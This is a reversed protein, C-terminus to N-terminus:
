ARTSEIVEPLDLLLKRMDAADLGAENHAAANGVAALSDIHKMKTKSYHQMGYLAQNFDNLTPRPKSPYCGLSDCTSRLHEELVARGIVGAALLYGASLLHEAQELLDALTEARVLQTVVDLHDSEIEHHVAELTGLIKTTFTLTNREPDSTLVDRWPTAASGLQHCLSKVKGWWKHLAQLDVFTPSGIVRTNFKTSAVAAGEEILEGVIRLFREKQAQKM